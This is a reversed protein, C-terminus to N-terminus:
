DFVSETENVVDDSENLIKLALAEEKKFLEELESELTNICENNDKIEKDINKPLLLIKESEKSLCFRGNARTLKQNYRILRQIEKEKVEIEKEIGLMAEGKEGAEKLTAAEVAADGADRFGRRKKGIKLMEEREKKNVNLVGERTFQTKKLELESQYAIAKNYKEVAETLLGAEGEKEETELTTIRQKLRGIVDKLSKCEDLVENEGFKVTPSALVSTEKESSEVTADAVNEFKVESGSSFLSWHPMKWSSFINQLSEWFSSANAESGSAAAQPAVPSHVEGNQQSSFLWSFSPRWSPFWSVKHGSFPVSGNTENVKDYSEAPLQPHGVENASISNM